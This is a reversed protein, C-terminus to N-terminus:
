RKKSAKHVVRNTDEVTGQISDQQDKGEAPDTEDDVKKLEKQQEILVNQLDTIKINVHNAEQFAQVSVETNKALDDQIQEKAGAIKGALEHSQDRFMKEAKLEALQAALVLQARVEAAKDDRDNKAKRESARTTLV